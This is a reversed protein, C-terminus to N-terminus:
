STASTSSPSVAGVAYPMMQTSSNATTSPANNRQAKHQRQGSRRTQPKQLLQHEQQQQQQQQQQHQRAPGHLCRESERFNRVRPARPAKAFEPFLVRVGKEFIVPKYEDPVSTHMVPSNRYRDVHAQLGQHPSSWSVSCVKRSPLVWKAYGNFTSWFTPVSSSDALNVFAYGLCAQSKFDIPMYIFDYFGAFGEGDLMNLLMARTYNNPLNRLMVTTCDELPSDHSSSGAQSLEPAQIKDRTTAKSSAENRPEVVQHGAAVLQSRHKESPAQDWFRQRLSENENALRAVEDLLQQVDHKTALSSSAGEVAPSSQSIPPLMGCASANGDVKESDKQWAGHPATYDMGGPSPSPTRVQRDGSLSKNDADVCSAPFRPGRPTSASSSPCSEQIHSYCPLPNCGQTGPDTETDSLGTLDFEVDGTLSEFMDNNRPSCDQQGSSEYLASDSSARPMTKSETYDEVTELFTNKLVLRSMRSGDDKQNSSAM